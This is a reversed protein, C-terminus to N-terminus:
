WVIELLFCSLTQTFRPSLSFTLTPKVLPWSRSEARIILRRNPTKKFTLVQHALGHADTGGGLRTIDEFLNRMWLACPRRLPHVHELHIDACHCSRFGQTFLSASTLVNDFCFWRMTCFSQHCCYEGTPVDLVRFYLKTANIVFFYLYASM